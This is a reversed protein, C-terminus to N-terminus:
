IGWRSHLIKKLKIGVEGCILIAPAGFILYYLWLFEVGGRDGIELVLTGSGDDEFKFLYEIAIIIYLNVLIFFHIAWLPWLKISPYHLKLAISFVPISIMSLILFWGVLEEAFYMDFGTTTKADIFNYINNFIALILIMTTGTLTLIFVQMYPAQRALSRPSTIMNSSSPKKSFKWFYINLGNALRKFPNRSIKKSKFSAEELVRKRVKRLNTRGQFPFLTKGLFGFFIIPLPSLVGYWLALFAWGYDADGNSEAVISGVLIVMIIIHVFYVSLLGSNLKRRGFIFSMIPLSLFSFIIFSSTALESWLADERNAEVTVIGLIILLPFIALVTGFVTYVRTYISSKKFFKIFLKFFNEKNRKNM